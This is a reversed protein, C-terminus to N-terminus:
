RCQCHCAADKLIAGIPFCVNLCGRRELAFSDPACVECCSRPDCSRAANKSPRTSPILSQPTANGRNHTRTASIATPTPQAELASLM